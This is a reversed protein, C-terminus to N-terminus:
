MYANPDDYAGSIGTQPAFIDVGPALRNPIIPRDHWHSNSDQITQLFDGRVFKFRDTTREGDEVKIYIGEAMESLDSQSLVMEPRSGTLHADEMLDDKWTETRYLTPRVQDEISDGRQFIGERLVPAPVIPLGFLLERRASTSLFLKRETDYVDFEFFYAPLANYYCTHKAYAWEGYMVYRSGLAGYLAPAHTHAWTKFMSFHRERGGGQLFHGRSQLRLIGDNSFSVGTNAGDIKEEQVLYLGELQQLPKDDPSDGKQHRSGAVHRTSPYKIIQEQM